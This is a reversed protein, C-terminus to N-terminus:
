RLPLGTLVQYFFGILGSLIQGGALIFAILLFLSYQQLAMWTHHLHRPLLGAVVKEGDLPALPILNFIGLMINIIAIESWLAIPAIDLRILMALVGAILFNTLPGALSIVAAGLAPNRLSLPSFQVPKGWGFGALLILLTGIPDLHALPNLTLRGTYRPTLDGLRDAVFAHAAEHFTIAVLLGVVWFYFALPDTLVQSLV